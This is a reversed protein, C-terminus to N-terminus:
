HPNGHNRGLVRQGRLPRHPRGALRDQDGAERAREVDATYIAGEVRDRQRRAALPGMQSAESTLSM